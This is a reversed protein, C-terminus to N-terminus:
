CDATALSPSVITALALHGPRPNSCFALPSVFNAGAKKLEENCLDIFYASAQQMRAAHVGRNAARINDLYKNVTELPM